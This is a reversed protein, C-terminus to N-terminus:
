PAATSRLRDRFSLGAAQILSTTRGTVVLPEHSYTLTPVYVPRYILLMAKRSLYKKVAVTRYLEQMVVSAMGVVVRIERDMRGDSTLLVGLDMAQPLLEGVDLTLLGGNWGSGVAFRKLTHPPDDVSSVLLVKDDAFASTYDQPEQAPRVSDFVRLLFTQCSVSFASVARVAPNSLGWCCAPLEM